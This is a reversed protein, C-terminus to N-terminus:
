GIDFYKPMNDKLEHHKLETVNGATAALNLPIRFYKGVATALVNGARDVIKGEGEFARNTVNTITSIIYLKENLPVPKRFKLALDITVAWIDPLSSYVARGISEDLLASIIGGHTRGPYSQHIDRTTFETIMVDAGSEDVCNFFEARISANNYIGCVFCQEDNWQKSKVTFRM